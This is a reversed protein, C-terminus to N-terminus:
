REKGQIHTLANTKSISLPAITILGGLTLCCLDAFYAICLYLYPLFIIKIM